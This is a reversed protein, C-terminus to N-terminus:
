QQSPPPIPPGTWGEVANALKPIGAASQTPIWNVTIDTTSHPQMADRLQGISM